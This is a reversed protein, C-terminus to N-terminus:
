IGKAAKVFIALSYPLTKEMFSPDEQHTITLSGLDTFSTSMVLPACKSARGVRLRKSRSKPPSLSFQLNKKKKGKAKQRKSLRTSTEQAPDKLNIRFKLHSPNDCVVRGLFSINHGFFHHAYTKISHLEFSYDVGM